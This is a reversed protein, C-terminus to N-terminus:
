SFKCHKYPEFILKKTTQREMDDRKDKRLSQEYKEIISPAQYNSYIHVAQPWTMLENRNNDFKGCSFTVMTPTM